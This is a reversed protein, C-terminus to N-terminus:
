IEELNFRANINNASLFETKFSYTFGSGKVHLDKEVLEFPADSTLLNNKIDYSLWSGKFYAGDTRNITVNDEFTAVNEIMVGRKSELAYILDDKKLLMQLEQAVDKAKYRMISKAKTIRKVENPQLEYDVVDYMEIKAETSDLKSLDLLYPDQLLVSLFIAVFIAM